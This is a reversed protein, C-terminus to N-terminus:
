GDGVDAFFFWLARQLDQFAQLRAVRAIGDEQDFQGPEVSLLFEIGLGCAGATGKQGEGGLVGVIGANHPGFVGQQLQAQGLGVLTLKVQRQLSQPPHFFHVPDGLADM